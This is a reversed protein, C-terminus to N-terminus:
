ILLLKIQLQKDKEVYKESIFLVKKLANVILIFYLPVGGPKYKQLANFGRTIWANFITNNIRNSL